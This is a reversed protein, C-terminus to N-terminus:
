FNLANLCRSAKAKGLVRHNFQVWSLERNLYYEPKKYDIKNNSKGSKDGM